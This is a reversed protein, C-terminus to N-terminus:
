PRYDYLYRRELLKSVATIPLTLLLYLVGLLLYCEFMRFNVATIERMTQTIEILAIMSLLSSDKILSAFQGTLAPLTRATLQPLLVYHLTQMRTFGVAKAAELQVKDMSLLSGRLIEAIYAGEFVSLIVVGAIFRDSVGLATGVIYYFLYIQMILPTGRIIQVYISAAYRIILVRCSRGLTAVVGIALSLGLSYLSLRVTTALGKGIRVKFSVLSGFDLAVDLAGLALWFCVTLAAAALLMNLSMVVFGSKGDPKAVFLTRLFDKM